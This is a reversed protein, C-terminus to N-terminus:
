MSNVVIVLLRIVKYMLVNYKCLVTITASNSYVYPYGSAVVGRYVGAHCEKLVPIYLDSNVGDIWYQGRTISSASCQFASPQIQSLRVSM